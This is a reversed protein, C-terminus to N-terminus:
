FLKFLEIGYRALDILLEGTKKYYDVFCELVSVVNGHFGISTAISNKRCELVREILSDLNKCTEKVWGQSYRKM